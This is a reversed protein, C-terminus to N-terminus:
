RTAIHRGCRAARVYRAKGERFQRASRQRHLRPTECTRAIIRRPHATAVVQATGPGAGEKRRTPPPLRAIALPELFVFAVDIKGMHARPSASLVIRLRQESGKRPEVFLGTAAQLHWPAAKRGFLVERDQGVAGAQDPLRM